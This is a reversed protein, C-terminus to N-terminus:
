DYFCVAEQAGHAMNLSLVKSHLALFVGAMHGQYAPCMGPFPTGLACDLLGM